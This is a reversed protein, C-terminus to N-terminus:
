KVGIEVTDKITEYFEDVCWEDNVSEWENVHTVGIKDFGRFYDVTIYFTIGNNVFKYTNGVCKSLHFWLEDEADNKIGKATEFLEIFKESM